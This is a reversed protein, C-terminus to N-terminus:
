NSEVYNLINKQLQNSHEDFMTVEIPLFGVKNSSAFIKFEDFYMLRYWDKETTILAFNENECNEEAYELIENIESKSFAHHDKFQFHKIVSNQANLFALFETPNAIGTIVAFDFGKAHVKNFNSYISEIAGYTLWSAFVLQSQFNSTLEVLNHNFEESYNTAIITNANKARSKLDRLNGAPFLSDKLFTRKAPTLLISYGPILKRHQFADDLVVVQIEPHISKIIELARVRKEDVFVSVQDKFYAKQMFPEDGVELVSHNTTVELFGKTTRKYGRSLIAVSYNKELLFNVLFRTHPSKGTGGLNLNGIVITKPNSFSRSQKIGSDYLYHRLKLILELIKHM